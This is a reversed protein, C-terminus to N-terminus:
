QCLSVQWYTALGKFLTEFVSELTEMTIPGCGVAGVVENSLALSSAIAFYRERIERFLRFLLLFHSDITVIPIIPDDIDLVYYVKCMNFTNLLCMPVHISYQTLM